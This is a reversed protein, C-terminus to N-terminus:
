KKEKKGAKDNRKKQEARMKELKEASIRNGKDDLLTM